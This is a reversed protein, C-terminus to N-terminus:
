RALVAEEYPLVTSFGLSRYLAQAALNRQQVNLGIVEVHELLRHCLSSVVARGLGKRRHGPHTAINGLAAVGHVRDVVHVGGAAELMDGEWCGVYFGTGVLGPHFFDGAIADTAFLRELAPVASRRLVVVRPDAPALRDRRPLHMKIHPVASRAPFAPALAEAMGIPGHAVIRDPLIPALRRLLDLTGGEAGASVAYLVPASSGPLDLLGVVADGEQWWRSRDWLQEVDAIGYPHAQPCQLFTALVGAPDRVVRPQLM